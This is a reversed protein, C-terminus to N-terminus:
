AQDEPDVTRNDTSTEAIVSRAHERRALYDVSQALYVVGSVLVVLGVFSAILGIVTWATGDDSSGFFSSTAAEIAQVQGAGYALQGVVLLVVGWGLLGASAKPTWNM